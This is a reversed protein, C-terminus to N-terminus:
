FFRHSRCRRSLARRVDTLTFKGLALRFELSRSSVNRELIERELTLEALQRQWAERKKPDPVAFTLHALKASTVQLQKILDALGPQDCLRMQRQRLFVAGKWALVPAYARETPLKSPRALHLFSNLQYFIQKALILQERESQAAAALDLRELTM